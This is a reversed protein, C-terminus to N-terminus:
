EPKLFNNLLVMEVHILVIQFLGSWILKHVAIGIEGNQRKFTWQRKAKNKGVTSQISWAHKALVRHVVDAARCQGTKIMVKEM